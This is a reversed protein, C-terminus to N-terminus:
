LLGLLDWKEIPRAGHAQAEAAEASPLSASTLVFRVPHGRHTVYALLSTGNAEPMAYDCVVLDIHERELAEIAERVSAVQDVYAGRHELRSAVLARFTDDDDVVLVAEGSAALTDPFTAEHSPDLAISM